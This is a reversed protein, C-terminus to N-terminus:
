WFDAYATYHIYGTNVVVNPDSQFRFGRVSIDFPATGIPRNNTWGANPGNAAIYSQKSANGAGDWYSLTPTARMPPDFTPGGTGYFGSSLTAQGSLGTTTATGPATGNDYSARFYRACTSLETNINRFEPTPPSSNLGTTVNPTVRFDAATVTVSKTNASFNNGFDIKIEYGNVASSSVALTYSLTATSGNTVTQLNTAALDAVPSTWNDTSGAYRTAITPTISGGTNNTVRLQFTCTQGALPAADYSEIRQGLTIDTVSTNGTLTLSQPAGNSGTTVQSWGITAGTAIAAWGSATISSSGTATNAISGSTGNPWVVFSGNRLKNVFGIAQGTVTNTTTVTSTVAPLSLTSSGAVAPAQLTVTGSTDGAIVVSSM